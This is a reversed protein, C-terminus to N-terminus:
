SSKSVAATVVVYRIGGAWTVVSGNKLIAVYAGSKAQIHQMNRLQEQVHDSDGGDEPDGWTVVFGSDLIAAFASCTAQSLQM